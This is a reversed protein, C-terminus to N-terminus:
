LKRMWTIHALELKGLKQLQLMGKFVSQFEDSHFDLPLLRMEQHLEESMAFCAAALRDCFAQQTFGSDGCSQFVLTRVQSAMQELCPLLTLEMEDQM